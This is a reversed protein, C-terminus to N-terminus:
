KGKKAANKPKIPREACKEKEEKEKQCRNRAGDATMMVTQSRKLHFM